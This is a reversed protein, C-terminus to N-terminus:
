LGSGGAAQGGITLDIQDDVTTAVGGILAGIVFAGAAWGIVTGRSTRAALSFPGRLSAAAHAPGVREPLLGAGLDRGSGLRIAVAALVVTLALSPLLMWANDLAFPRVAAIWGFPSLWFASGGVADGAGRLVFFAAVVAVAIGIAARATQVIQSTLSAVAAALVGFLAVQAGVLLSGVVSAGIALFGSVVMIGTVLSGLAALSLAAVLPAARGIAASGLMESTGREELARTNRVVVIVSALSVFIAAIGLMRWLGVGGVDTSSIPGIMFLEGASANVSAALAERDASTPYTAVIGAAIGVLLLGTLLYWATGNLRERRLTLGLMARTGVLATGTSM